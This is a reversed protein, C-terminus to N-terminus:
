KKELMLRTQHQIMGPIRSALRALLTPLLVEVRVKDEAVDISGTIRQAFASLSFDFHDGSWRQDDIRLLPTLNAPIEAFGKRLRRVAEEKGLRHSITVVFPEPM